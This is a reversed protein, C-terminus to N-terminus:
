RKRRRLLAASGLALLSLTAPEPVEAIRFGLGGIAASESTPYGDSGVSAQLYRDDWGFTGGRLARNTSGRVGENWEWLNGGQDFTGYPSESNEFEGVETLWYPSGITYDASYPSGYIFGADYNANNGPDPNTLDNSPVSDSRTSYNWYGVGGPKNPDYYAAKYWEDESPIVYRANAERTVAMLAERTVAGNLSYSGDETSLAGEAGTKQGNTLWNAFRAADGWSVYSVPRNAWDSAVNYSYNGVTGSQEIKCGYTSNWMLPNYLGYTDTKAVANLFATYQGATVEYKGIEYTYPVAGYGPSTYRTDPANGPNGVTVTEITIAMAGDAVLLIAALGVVAMVM